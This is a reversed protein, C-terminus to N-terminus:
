ENTSITINGCTTITTNGYISFMALVDYISYSTQSSPNEMRESASLEKFELSSFMNSLNMDGVVLHFITSLAGYGFTFGVRTLFTTKTYYEYAEKSKEYEYAVVQEYQSDDVFLFYGPIEGRDNNLKPVKAFIIEEIADQSIESGTAVVMANDDYFIEIAENIAEAKEIRDHYKEILKGIESTKKQLELLNKAKEYAIVRERWFDQNYYYFANVRLFELTVDKANKTEIEGREKKKSEEIVKGYIVGWNRYRLRISDPIEYQSSDGALDYLKLMGEASRGWLGPKKSYYAVKIPDTILRLPTLVLFSLMRAIFVFPSQFIRLHRTYKKWGSPTYYVLNKYSLGMVSLIWPLLFGLVKEGVRAIAHVRTLPYWATIGVEGAWHAVVAELGYYELASQIGWPVLGFIIEYIHVLKLGFNVFRAGGKFIEEFKEWRGFNAILKQNKRALGARRTDTELMKKIQQNNESIERAKSNMHADLAFTGAEIGIQLFFLYMNVQSLLAFRAGMSGLYVSMAIPNKWFVDWAYQIAAPIATIINVPPASVWLNHLMYIPTKNYFLSAVRDSGTIKQVFKTLSLFPSSANKMATGNEKFIDKANALMLRSYEKPVNQGTESILQPDAANLNKEITSDMTEKANRRIMNEAVVKKNSQFLNTKGLLVEASEANDIPNSICEDSKLVCKFVDDVLEGKQIRDALKVGKESNIVVDAGPIDLVTKALNEIMRDKMQNKLEETIGQMDPNQNEITIVGERIKCVDKLLSERLIDTTILQGVGQIEQTKQGLIDKLPQDLLGKAISMCNWNLDFIERYFEYVKPNSKVFESMQTETILDTTTHYAQAAMARISTDWRFMSDQQNELKEGFVPVRPIGNPFISGKANKFEENLEEQSKRVKQFIGNEQMMHAVKSEVSPADRTSMMSVVGATLATAGTLLTLVTFVRAGSPTDTKKRDRIRDAEVQLGIYGIDEKDLNEYDDYNPFFLDVIWTNGTPIVGFGGTWGMWGIKMEMEMGMGMRSEIDLEMSDDQDSNFAVILDLKKETLYGVNDAVYDIYERLEKGTESSVLTSFLYAAELNEQWRKKLDPLIMDYYDEIKLNSYNKLRDESLSSLYEAMIENMVPEGTSINPILLSEIVDDIFDRFVFNVPLKSNAYVDQHKLEEERNSKADYKGNWKSKYRDWSDLHESLEGLSHLTTDIMTEATRGDFFSQLTIEPDNTIDFLGQFTERFKFKLSSPADKLRTEWLIKMNENMQKTEDDIKEMTESFSTSFDMFANLFESREVNNNGMESLIKIMGHFFQMRSPYEIRELQFPPVEGFVDANELIQEIIPTRSGVPDNLQENLIEIFQHISKEPAPGKWKEELMTANSNVLIELMKQRGAIMEKEIEKHRMEFERQEKVKSLLPLKPPAIQKKEQKESSPGPKRKPTEELRKELEEMIPAKAGETAEIKSKKVDIFVKGWMSKVDQIRSGTRMKIHVTDNRERIVKYFPDFQSEITKWMKSPMKHKDVYNVDAPFFNIINGDVNKFLIPVNNKKEANKITKHMLEVQIPNRKQDKAITTYIEAYAQYLSKESM